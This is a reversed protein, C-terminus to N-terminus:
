CRRRRLAALAVMALTAMGTPEPAVTAVEPSTLNDRWVTYDAADVVGDANGDAALFEGAQGYADRWAAYDHSDVDGDFDYDGAVTLVLAYEGQEGHYGEFGFDGYGTVGFVLEGNEPVVGNLRSFYALSGFGIDDNADIENGSEDFWGLYTDMSSFPAFQSPETNVVFSVGPPLGVFRFFDVDNPFANNVVVDYTGDDWGPDSEFYSDVVGEELYGDFQYYDLFEGDTDYITVEAQYEGFQNHNGELSDDLVGTVGFDIEGGPNVPAGFIAPAFGDGLYSSDDDTDTLVGSGDFLGLFLDPYAGEEPLEFSDDVSTQGISLVEADFFTDGADALAARASLVGAGVILLILSSRTM